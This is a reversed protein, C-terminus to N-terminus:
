MYQRPMHITNQAGKSVETFMPFVGYGHPKEGKHYFDTTSCMKAYSRANQWEFTTFFNYIQRNKVVKCGAKKSGKLRMKPM